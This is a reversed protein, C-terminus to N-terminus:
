QINIDQATPKKIETKPITINLVGNEHKATVNSVDINKPLRLSRQVKGYSREIRRWNNSPKAQDKEKSRDKGETTSPVKNSEEKSTDTDMGTTTDSGGGGGSPQEYKREYKREASITLFGEDSINIKMDDKTLGPMDASVVYEKDRELVDVRINRIPQLKSSGWDSLFGGSSSPQDVLQKNEDGSSKGERRGERKSTTPSKDETKDLLQPTELFPDSLFPDSMFPDYLNCRTMHDFDAM